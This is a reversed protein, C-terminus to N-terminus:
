APSGTEQTLIQTKIMFLGEAVVHYLKDPRLKAQELLQRITTDLTPQFETMAPASVPQPAVPPLPSQQAATPKPRTKGSTDIDMGIFLSPAALAPNSAKLESEPDPAPVTKAGSVQAGKNPRRDSVPNEGYTRVKINNPDKIVGGRVNIGLSSLSKPGRSPPNPAPTPPPSLDPATTVKVASARAVSDAVAEALGANVWDDDIM